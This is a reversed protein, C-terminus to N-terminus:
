KSLNEEVVFEDCKALEQDFTDELQGFFNEKFDDELNGSSSSIRSSYFQGNDVEVSMFDYATEDHWRESFCKIYRFDASETGGINVIGDYMPYEKGDKIYSTKRMFIKDTNITTINNGGLDKSIYMKNKPLKKLGELFEHRMSSGISNLRSVSQYKVSDFVLYGKEYEEKVLKKAYNCEDNYKDFFDKLEM